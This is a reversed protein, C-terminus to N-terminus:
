RVQDALRKKGEDEKGAEPWDGYVHRQHGEIDVEILRLIADRGRESLLELNDASIIQQQTTSTSDVSASLKNSQSCGGRSLFPTRTAVFTSTPSGVGKNTSSSSASTSTCFSSM